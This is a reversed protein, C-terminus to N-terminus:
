TPPNALQTTSINSHYTGAAQRKSCMWFVVASLVNQALPISNSAASIISSITVSALCPGRYFCHHREDWHFYLQNKVQTFITRITISHLITFKFLIRPSELLVKRCRWWGLYHLPPICSCHEDYILKRHSQSFGLSPKPSTHGNRTKALPKRISCQKYHVWAKSTAKLQHFFLLISSISKTWLAPLASPM